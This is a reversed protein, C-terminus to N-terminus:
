AGGERGSEGKEKGQGRRRERGEGEWGRDEKRKGGKTLLVWLIWSPPRPYYSSAVTGSSRWRPRPGASISYTGKVYSM